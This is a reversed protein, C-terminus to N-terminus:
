CFTARRPSHRRSWSWSTRSSSLDGASWRVCSSWRKASRSLHAVCPWQYRRRFGRPAGRGTLRRKGSGHLNAIAEDRPSFPSRPCPCFSKRRFWKARLSLAANSVGLNVLETLADLELENLVVHSADTMSGSEPKAKCCHGPLRRAGEVTWHSRSFLRARRGRGSSSRLKITGGFDGRYRSTRIHRQRLEAALMLGDKGPMNFDLVVFDVTGRKIHELAEGEPM